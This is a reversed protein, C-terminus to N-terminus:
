STLTESTPSPFKSANYILQFAIIVAAMKKGQQEM